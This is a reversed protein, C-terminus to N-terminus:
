CNIRIITKAAKIVNPDKALKMVKHGDRCNSQKNDNYSARLGYFYGVVENEKAANDILRTCAQVIQEKTGKTKTCTAFDAQM